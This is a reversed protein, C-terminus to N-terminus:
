QAQHATKYHERLLDRGFDGEFDRWVAHIHNANNQTDDYEVLFTPGQVKYYHPDGPKIGGAWGFSIKDLGAKHARDLREKALPAPMAAAYEALLKDLLQKQKADMASAMIGEVKLPEVKPDNKTIIEGPAKDTFIAQKRQGEDLATVLQRAIDEENKLVRRGKYPGEVRVEGPNSGFFQPTTALMTGKVITFSLSVHHGEFRWGWTGGAAPTGFVSLYYKEPDRKVPDKEMERLVNELEMIQTAKTYGTQSVSAKLFAMAATRQAPTMEKIRVGKREIPIFFWTVRHQDELTFSAQKKQEPTLTGLFKNAADAMTAGPSPAAADSLRAVVLAAVLMSGGLLVLRAHKM